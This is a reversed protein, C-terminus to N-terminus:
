QKLVAHQWQEFQETPKGTLCECKSQQKLASYERDQIQLKEEQRPPTNWLEGSMETLPKRDWRQNEPRRWIPRGEVTELEM